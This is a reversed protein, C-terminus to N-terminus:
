EAAESRAYGPSAGSSLSPTMQARSYLFTLEGARDGFTALAESWLLRAEVHPCDEECADGPVRARLRREHAVMADHWASLRASLAAAEPTGLSSSLFTYPNM